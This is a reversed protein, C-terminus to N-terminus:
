EESRCRSAFCEPSDESVESYTKEHASIHRKNGEPFLRRSLCSARCEESLLRFPKAPLKGKPALLLM